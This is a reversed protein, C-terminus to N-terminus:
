HALFVQKRETVMEGDGIISTSLCKSLPTIENQFRVFPLFLIEFFIIFIDLAMLSRMEKKKKFPWNVKKKKASFKNGKPLKSYVCFFKLSFFNLTERGWFLIKLFWISGGSAQNLYFLISHEFNLTVTDIMYTRKLLFETHCIYCRCKLFDLQYLITVM